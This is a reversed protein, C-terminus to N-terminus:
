RFELKVRLTQIFIFLWTFVRYYLLKINYHMLKLILGIPLIGNWNFFWIDRVRCKILHKDTYQMKNVLNIHSRIKSFRGKPCLCVKSFVWNFVKVIKEFLNKGCKSLAIILGDKQSVEWWFSKQIIVDFQGIHGFLYIQDCIHIILVIVVGQRSTRIM